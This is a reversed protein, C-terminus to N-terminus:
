SHGPPGPALLVPTPPGSRGGSVSLPVELNSRAACDPCRHVAPGPGYRWYCAACLSRGCGWCLLRPSQADVGSGCSTCHPRAVSVPIPPAPPEPGSISPRRSPPARVPPPSELERVRARLRALELELRPAEEEVEEESWPPAASRPQLGASFPLAAAIPPAVEAWAAADRGPSEQLSQLYAGPISTVSRGMAAMAPARPDIPALPRAREVSAMASVAVRPPPAAPAQPAPAAEDWPEAPAAAVPLDALPAPTEVAVATGIPAPVPPSTLLLVFMTGILVFLGALITWLTASEPAQHFWTGGAVLLVAGLTLLGLASGVTFRLPRSGRGAGRTETGSGM